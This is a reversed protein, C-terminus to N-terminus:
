QDYDSIRWNSGTYVWMRVAGGAAIEVAAAYNGSPDCFVLAGRPTLAGTINVVVTEVSTLGAPPPPCTDGVQVLKVRERFLWRNSDASFAELRVTDKNWILRVYTGEAMAQARARQLLGKVQATAAREPRPRLIRSSLASVGLIVAMIGIVIMVEALTWGRDDKRGM